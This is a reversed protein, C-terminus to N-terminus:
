AMRFLLWGAFGLLLVIVPIAVVMSKRANAVLQAGSQQIKEARDQIKNAREYQEKILDFNARQMDLAEAQMKLQQQQGARLEELVKLTQQDNDV